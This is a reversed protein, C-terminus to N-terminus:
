ATRCLWLVCCCGDLGHVLGGMAPWVGVEPTRWALKEAPDAGKLQKRALEAWEADLPLGEGRRGPGEAAEREGSEGDGASSSGYVSRRPAAACSRLLAPLRGVALRGRTAYSM